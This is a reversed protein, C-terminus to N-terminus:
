ADQYDVIILSYVKFVVVFSSISRSIKLSLAHCELSSSAELTPNRKPSVMKLARFFPYQTSIRGTERLRNSYRIGYLIM